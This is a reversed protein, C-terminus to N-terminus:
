RADETREDTAVSAVDVALLAAASASAGRPAVRFEQLASGDWWFGQGVTLPSIVGDVGDLTWDGAAAHVLGRRTPKLTGATRLVRLDARFRGRRTMVNFDMSEGALLTARLARGGDFAFPRYPLDLRHDIDGGDTSALRLGGGRLLAICRDVGSFTSFAVDADITAVSIRWDFDDFGAGAPRCVIERTTGGGSKWSVVPLSNLDFREILTV